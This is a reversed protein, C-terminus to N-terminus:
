LNCSFIVNYQNYRLTLVTSTCLKLSYHILLGDLYGSTKILGRRQVQQHAHQMKKRLITSAGLFSYNGRHNM